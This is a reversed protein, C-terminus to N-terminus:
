PSITCAPFLAHFVAKHGLRAVGEVVDLDGTELAPRRCNM